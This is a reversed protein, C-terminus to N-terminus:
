AAAQEGLPSLRLGAGGGFVLGAEELRKLHYSVTSPALGLTAAIQRSSQGPQARVADFVSRGGGSRLVPAANMVRRDVTGKPFYCAYGGNVVKTLIGAAIMKRLHHELTGRGLNLRRGMDQFHIGPEAQVLQLVQARRPHDLLKDDQIRSFGALVPLGKVAPWFYYVAAAVLAAFGVGAVAEPSVPLAFQVSDGNARGPAADGGVASPVIPIFAEDRTVIHQRRALRGDPDAWVSDMIGQNDVVAEGVVQIAGYQDGVLRGGLALVPGCTTWCKASFGYSNASASGDETAWADFREMLGRATPLSAPLEGLRPFPRTSGPPLWTPSPSWDDVVPSRGAQPPLFVSDAVGMPALEVSKPLWDVGDSFILFWMPHSYGQRDTLESYTAYSLYGAPHRAMWERVTTHNTDLAVPDSESLAAAFATSLPFPHEIGTDDIGWPTWPSTPAPGLGESATADEVAAYPEGGREFAIRELTFMRGWTYDPHLFDTLPTEVRKPFSSAADLWIRLSEQEGKYVRSRGHGYAEEHWGQLSYRTSSAGGPWVCGSATMTAPWDDAGQAAMRMACPGVPGDYWESQLYITVPSGVIDDLIIGYNTGDGQTVTQNQNDFLPEGTAADYLSERSSVSEYETGPAFVYTARLPHAWRTGFTADRVIRAPLWEMSIESIATVNGLAMTRNLIVQTVNYTARDGPRPAPVVGDAPPDSDGASVFGVMGGTALLVLAGILVARGLRRGDSWMM